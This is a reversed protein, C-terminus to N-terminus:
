EETGIAYIDHKIDPRLLPSLDAPPKKANMNWTITLIRLRSTELADHKDKDEEWNWVPARKLREKNTKNVTKMKIFMEECKHILAKKVLSFDKDIKSEENLVKYDFHQENPMDDSSDESERNIGESNIKHLKKFAREVEPHTRHQDESRKEEELNREESILVNDDEEVESFNKIFSPRKDRLDNFIQKEKDKAIDGELEERQHKTFIGNEDNSAPELIESECKDNM